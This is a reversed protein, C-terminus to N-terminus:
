EVHVGPEVVVLVDDIEVVVDEGAAIIVLEVDCVPTQTEDSALRVINMLVADGCARHPAAKPVRVTQTGESVHLYTLM